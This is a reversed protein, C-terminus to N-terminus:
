EVGQLHHHHVTGARLRRQERNIENIIPWLRKVRDKTLIRGKETALYLQDIFFRAMELTVPQDGLRELKAAFNNHNIM